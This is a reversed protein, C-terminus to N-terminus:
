GIGTVTYAATKECFQLLCRVVGRAIAAYKPIENHFYHILETGMALSQLKESVLIFYNGQLLQLSPPASGAEPLSRQTM